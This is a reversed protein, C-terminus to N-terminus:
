QWTQKAILRQIAEESTRMANPIPYYRPDHPFPLSPLSEPPITKLWNRIATVYERRTDSLYQGKVRTGHVPHNSLSGATDRCLMSIVPVEKVLHGLIHESRLLLETDGGFRVTDWAGLRDDLFTKDILCSIPIRRAFGDKSLETYAQNIHTPTGARSLRIGWSLSLPSQNKQATHARMHHELRQPHSWDDSDQGTVFSGRAVGLALNKAAYPGVNHACHILKVRPDKAAIELLIPWSSDNSADDVILLELNRWTQTLISQAAYEVANAMNYVTMLVSILPGDTVATLANAPKLTTFIGQPPPNTINGTLGSQGYSELYRNLATFWNLNDNHKVAAVMELSGLTPLLDTPLHDQAMALALDDNGYSAVEHAAILAVEGRKVVDPQSLHYLLVNVGKCAPGYIHSFFSTSFAPGPDRALLTGYTLFHDLPDLSSASVDPYNQLYWDSDFFGSAQVRECDRKPVELIQM